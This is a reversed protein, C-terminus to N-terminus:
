TDERQPSADGRAPPRYGAGEFGPARPRYEQDFDPDDCGLANLGADLAGTLDALQGNVFCGRVGSGDLVDLEYREGEPWGGEAVNQWFISDEYVNGHASDDVGNRNGVFTSRRVTVRSTPFVTLAGSGHRPKWKGVEAGRADMPGNSRNDVFLCNEIVASSGRLLDIASGTVPCSNERFVCDRFLVAGEMFGQHEVSVGAGCPSAFNRSVEVGVITPYSRGFIKIGGGDSYFYLSKGLGAPLPGPELEPQPVTPGMVFGNAGTLVFGRLTTARSIGDGFYVVHNVIAPYSPDNEHAVDPNAASLVVRGVAELVIGDHKRNFRVLAQGPHQPRYTGAHVQVRKHAPDAAAADLAAQIDEGPRVHYVGAADPRIGPAAEASCAALCGLGAALFRALPRARAGPPRSARKIRPM